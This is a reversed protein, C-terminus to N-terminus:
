VGPPMFVELGTLGKRIQLLDTLQPIFELFLRNEQLSFSDIGSLAGLSILVKKRTELDLDPKCELYIEEYGDM